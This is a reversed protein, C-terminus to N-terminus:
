RSTDAPEPVGKKSVFFRLHELHELHDPHDLHELHDRHDLHRDSRSGDDVGSM